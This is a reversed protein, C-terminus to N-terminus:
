YQSLAGLKALMDAEENGHIKNHAKVWCLRVRNQNCLENLIIRCEKKLRSYINKSTKLEDIVPQCDIYISIDRDSVKEELLIEVAKMVAFMEAQLINYYTPLRYSESRSHEIFVGSGVGNKYKSGDTYVSIEGPITVRNQEWDDKTTKIYTFSPIPVIEPTIYDNNGLLSTEM